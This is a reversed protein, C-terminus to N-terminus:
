TTLHLNEVCFKYKVRKNNKKTFIKISEPKYKPNTNSLLINTLLTYYINLIKFLYKLGLKAIM